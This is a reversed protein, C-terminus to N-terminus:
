FREQGVVQHALRSWADNLRAQDRDVVDRERASRLVALVDEVISCPESDQLLEDFSMLDTQPTAPTNAAPPM